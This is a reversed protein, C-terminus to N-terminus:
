SKAPAQLLRAAETVSGARILEVGEIGSLKGSRPILVRRYGLRACERVRQELQSVSRIEGTLGIEGIVATHPPLPQDSLCSLVCLIIALDAAREELRLGGVVNLYM